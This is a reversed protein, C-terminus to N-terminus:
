LEHSRGGDSPGFKHHGLEYVFGLTMRAHQLM